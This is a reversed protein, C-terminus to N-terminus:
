EAKEVLPELIQELEDINPAYDRIDGLHDIVYASPFGDLRWKMVMPSPFGQDWTTVWSPGAEASIREFGERDQANIVGIIQFPRAAFKEALSKLQLAQNGSGYFVIAIIKGRFDSPKFAHGNVDIGDFDPVTKGIALADMQFLIANALTAYTPNRSEGEDDRWQGWEQPSLGPGTLYQANHAVSTRKIDPYEENIDAAAKRVQRDLVDPSLAKIMEITKPNIRENKWGSQEMWKYFSLQIGLWQCSYYLATARVHRHPSKEAVTQLLRTEIELGTVNSDALCLDLDPNDIYHEIMLEAAKVAAISQKAGVEWGGTRSQWAVSLAKLANPHGRYKEEFAFLEDFILGDPELEAIIRARKAENDGVANLAAWYKVSLECHRDSLKRFERDSEHEAPRVPNKFPRLEWDVNDLDSKAVKLSIIQSGNHTAAPHPEAHAMQFIGDGGRTGMIWVSAWEVSSPVEVTYRGQQNTIAQSMEACPNGASAIAEVGEAPTNDPWHVTGSIKTTPEAKLTIELEAQTGDLDFTMPSVIPPAFDSRITALPDLSSRRRGETAVCVVVKGLHPPLRFRGISDSKAASEVGYLFDGSQISDGIIKVVVGGVPNNGQDLVRGTVSTGKPLNIEDVDEDFPGIQTRVAATNESAALLQIVSNKPVYAQFTGDLECPIACWFDPKEGANELLVTPHDLRIPGNADDPPNVQGRILRGEHLTITGLDGSAMTKVASFHPRIDYYGDAKVSARLWLKKPDAVIGKCSIEFSGDDRTEVTVENILRTPPRLASDIESLNEIFALAVSAGRIPSGSENVVKGVLNEPGSAKPTDIEDFSESSIGSPSQVGTDISEFPRLIAIPLCVVAFCIWVGSCFRAQVKDRCISGDLIARLRREIPKQAMAVLGCFPSTRGSLMAALSLIEAAYAAPKAGDSLVRDDCARERENIMQRNALWVLPNFWAVCKALAAITQWLVDRRQVHAWEHALVFETRESTWQRATIPLVIRPHFIGMAVPVNFDPSFSIPVGAISKEAPQCALRRVKLNIWALRVCFYVVGLFWISVVAQEWDISWRPLIDAALKMPVRPIVHSSATLGDFTAERSGSGQERDLELLQMGNPNSQPFVIERNPLHVPSMPRDIWPQSADGNKTWGLPITPLCISALPLLLICGFAVQWVTFRCAAARNTLCRAISFALALIITSGIAIMCLQGFGVTQAWGFLLESM